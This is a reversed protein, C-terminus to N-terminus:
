DDYHSELKKRTVILKREWLDQVVKMQNDLYDLPLEDARVYEPYAAALAEVAPAAEADIELYQTPPPHRNLLMFSVELENGDHNGLANRILPLKWHPM